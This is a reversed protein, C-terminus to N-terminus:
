PSSQECRESETAEIRMGLRVLRRMELAGHLEREILPEPKGMLGAIEKTNKRQHWFQLIRARLENTSYVIM